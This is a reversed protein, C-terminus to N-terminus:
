HFISLHVSSLLQTRVSVSKHHWYAQIIFYSKISKFKFQFLLYHYAINTVFLFYFDIILLLKDHWWGALLLNHTQAPKDPQYKPPSALPHLVQSVLTSFCGDTQQHVGSWVLWHPYSPRPVTWSHQVSPPTMSTNSPDVLTCRLTLQPHQTHATLVSSWVGSGSSPLPSPQRHTSMDWMNPISLAAGKHCGTCSATDKDESHTHKPYVSLMVVSAFSFPAAADVSWPHLDRVRPQVGPALLFLTKYFYSVLAQQFCRGNRLDRLLISDSCECGAGLNEEFKKKKM